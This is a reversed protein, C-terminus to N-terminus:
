TLLGKVGQRIPVKFHEVLGSHTKDRSICNFGVECVGGGDVHDGGEGVRGVGRVNGNVVGRHNSEGM